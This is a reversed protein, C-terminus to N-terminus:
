ILPFGGDVIKSKATSSTLSIGQCIFAAYFYPHNYPCDSEKGKKRTLTFSSSESSKKEGKRKEQTFSNEIKELFLNFEESEFEDVFTLALKQKMESCFNKLESETLHRLWHNAAALAEPPSSTEEQLQRYFEIMILLCADQRVRWLPSIVYRVGSAFLASAVGVWEVTVSERTALGMECSSLTAVRYNFPANDYLWGAKITEEAEGKKVLKFSSKAPNNHNHQGHGSFHLCDGQDSFNEQFEQLSKPEISKSTPFFQSLTKIEFHVDLKDEGEDGGIVALLNAEDGSRKDARSGTMATHFSPLYSTTYREDDFFFHLPLLHLDNHPILILQQTDDPLSNLLEDMDLINALKQLEHQLNNQWESWQRPDNHHCHESYSDRWHQFWKEFQFCRESAREPSLLIPQSWQSSILFTHLALPSQHWYIVTTQPLLSARFDSFTASAVEEKPIWRQAFLWELCANKDREALELAQTLESNSILFDIELQSFDIFEHSLRQKKKDTLKPNQCVERLIRAGERAYALFSDKGLWSLTRVYLSLVRLRNEPFQEETFVKLAKELAKDAYRFYTRSEAQSNLHPNFALTRAQLYNIYGCQYYLNGKGEQDKVYKFGEKLTAMAGEYGRWDLRCSGSESDFAAQYMYHPLTASSFGQKARSRFASMARNSWTIHDNCKLKLAQDCSEIAEEYYYLHFLAYGKELWANPYQCNLKLCQDFSEIAEEYRGLNLLSDGKNYWADSITSNENLFSSGYSIPTIKRAQDFSEIAEEYRGLEMLALGKQYWPEHFNDNLKLGQEFSKLAEEYRGLKLLGLGKNYWANEHKDNNRLSRNFCQISEEYNQYYDSSLLILGKNNWANINKPNIDLSQNISQLAKEQFGLLYLVTGLECWSTYDKKNINLAKSFSEVAESYRQLSCLVIGKNRWIDSNKNNFHLAKNFNKLAEEYRGLNELCVGRIGWFYDCDYCIKRVEDNLSKLAERKEIQNLIKLAEEYSKSRSLELAKLFLIPTPYEFSM